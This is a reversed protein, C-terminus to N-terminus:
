DGSAEDRSIGGIPLLMGILIALAVLVVLTMIELSGDGADPSIGFYREIFNM